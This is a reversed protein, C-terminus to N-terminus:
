STEKFIASIACSVIIVHVTTSQVTYIPPIMTIFLLTTWKLMVTSFFIILYVNVVVSKYHHVTNTKSTKLLLYSSTAHIFNFYNTGIRQLTVLTHM